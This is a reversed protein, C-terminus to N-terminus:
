AKWVKLKMDLYYLYYERDPDNVRVFTAKRQLNEPQDLDFGVVLKGQNEFVRVDWQEKKQSDVSFRRLKTNYKYFDLKGDIISLKRSININLKNHKALYFVNELM